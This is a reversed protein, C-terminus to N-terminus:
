AIQNWIGRHAQALYAKMPFCLRDSVTFERILEDMEPRLKTVADLRGAGAPRARDSPPGPEPDIDHGTVAPDVIGVGRGNPEHLRLEVSTARADPWACRALVAERLKRPSPPVEPM